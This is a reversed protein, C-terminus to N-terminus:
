WPRFGGTAIEFAAAALVSGGLAGALVCCLERPEFRRALAAAVGAYIWLRILERATTGRDISWFISATTWALGSAVLLTLGDWRFHTQRPTTLVCIGGAALLFALGIVRGSKAADLGEEMVAKEQVGRGDEVLEADRATAYNPDHILGTLAGALLATVCWAIANSRASLPPLSNHSLEPSM